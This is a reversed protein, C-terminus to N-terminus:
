GKMQQRQAYDYYMNDQEGYDGAYEEYEPYDYERFAWSSKALALILALGFCRCLRMKHSNSPPPDQLKVNQRASYDNFHNIHGPASHLIYGDNPELQCSYSPLSSPTQPCQHHPM